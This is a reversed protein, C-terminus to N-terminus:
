SPAWNTTEVKLGDARAGLVIDELYRFEVPMQLGCYGINDSLWVEGDDSAAEILAFSPTWTTLIDAM